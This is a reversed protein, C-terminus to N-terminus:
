VHSHPSREFFKEREWAHFFHHSTASITGGKNPPIGIKVAPESLRGAKNGWGRVFMRNSVTAKLIINPTNFGWYNM